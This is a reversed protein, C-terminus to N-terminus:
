CDIWIAACGVMPTRAVLRGVYVTRSAAMLRYRVSIVYVVDDIPVQMVWMAIVTVIV